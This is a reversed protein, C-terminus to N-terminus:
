VSVRAERKGEQRPTFVIAVDYNLADAQERISSLQPNVSESELQSLRRHLFNFNRTYGM